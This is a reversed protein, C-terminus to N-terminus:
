EGNELSANNLLSMVLDDFSLGKQLAAMPVLSQETMGPVTNVELIDPENEKDWIFDVRAWHRCGLGVFARKSDDQIKKSIYDPLKAPCIYRTEKSVYKNYFNYDGGPAIVEIVPLAVPPSSTNDQLVACTLEAGQIFEEFLFTSGYNSLELISSEFETISNIKKVGLSSGEKNPKIIAPFFLAENDFNKFDSTSIQLFRPTKLNLTELIRKTQIKNIALSSAAMGSGTFPIKLYELIAQVQGDEGFSGHLAIFVKTIKEDVLEHILREKPDFPIVDINKRRLAGLVAYGSRLSIDRENSYGGMLVAVRDKKM